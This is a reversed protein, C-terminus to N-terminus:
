VNHGRHRNIKQRVQNFFHDRNCQYRKGDILTYRGVSSITHIGKNFKGRSPPELIAAPVEEFEEPTLRVIRNITIKKGYAESCDQAPRFLNGMHFFPTGAPRSSTIDIKVPNLKHPRYNGQLQSSYYLYLHTNSTAKLTFFLWWFNQYHFLTPDVADIDRILIREAVFNGESYNRKYLEITRNRYSEPVCYVHDQDHVVIFPYSLHKKGEIVNLPVSFTKSSPNFIVEAITAQGNFYDFDELLIHIKGEDVFGYPDALYHGKGTKPIWLIDENKIRTNSLAIDEISREIIGVNWFEARFFERYQFKIYDWWKKMLFHFMIWNGPIKFIAANSSSPTPFWTRGKMIENAVTVPWSSSIFLLQDLNARYSHKQTALFGKKLIIGADLKETLRQLIAGSVQDNYFIEWFGPPGGRYKMEDDHHFSWIGYKAVNLIEGRLINFGLRLIFDLHFSQIQELDSPNFYESSGKKEVLCHIVPIDRFEEKVNILRRAASRLFFRQFLRFLLNKFPYTRVKQFLKHTQQERDDRILVVLKHGGTRLLRVAEAQWLQLCHGTCMIGFKLPDNM